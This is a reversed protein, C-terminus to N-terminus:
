WMRYIDRTFLSIVFLYIYISHITCVEGLAHTGTACATQVGFNPGKAGTEMAIIGAVTNGLIMPITYPGIASPGGSRLDNVAFEFSEMGGFASGVIVGARTADVDLNSLDLGADALAMHSAAVAFHCSLDNQKIKKKSKYHESPNFGKVQAAIQCKFPEPDFRELRSVGSVGNCINDFYSTVTQGVPSIIGLGTVVITEEANRRMKLMSRKRFSSKVSVLAITSALISSLVLLIHM